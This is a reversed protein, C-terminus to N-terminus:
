HERTSLSSILGLVLLAADREVSRRMLDSVILMLLAVEISRAIDEINTRPLVERDDLWFLDFFASDILKAENLGSSSPPMSYRARLISNLSAVPIHM